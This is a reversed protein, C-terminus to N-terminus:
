QCGGKFWKTIAIKEPGGYPHPIRLEAKPDKAYVAGQACLSKRDWQHCANCPKKWVNEDLGEIPPFMPVGHILQELSQGYVPPPGFLIPKSFEVTDASPAPAEATPPPAPAPAPTPPPAPAPHPAPAPAGRFAAVETPTAPQLSRKIGWGGMPKRQSQKVLKYVVYAWDLDGVQQDRTVCVIDGKVLRDIFDSTGRPEKFINLAGAAVKFFRCDPEQAPAASVGAASVLVCIISRALM